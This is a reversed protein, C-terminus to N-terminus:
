NVRIYTSTSSKNEITGANNIFHTARARYDYGRTVAVNKLASIYFTNSGSNTVSTLDVWQTGDWKQLFITVSINQVSSVAESNGTINVTGDGKNTIQCFWSTFLSASLIQMSTANLSNETEISSGVLPNSSKVGETPVSAAAFAASISLCFVFIILFTLLLQKKM